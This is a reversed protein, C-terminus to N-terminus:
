SGICPLVAQKHLNRCSGFCSLVHYRVPRWKYRITCESRNYVAKLFTYEAVSSSRFVAFQTAKSVYLNAATTAVLSPDVSFM